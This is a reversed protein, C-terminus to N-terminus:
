KLHQIFANMMLKFKELELQNSTEHKERWQRRDEIRETGREELEQKGDARREERYKTIGDFEAVLKKHDFELCNQRLIAHALEAEERENWSM